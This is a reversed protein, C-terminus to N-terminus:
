AGNAALWREVARAEERELRRLLAGDPGILRAAQLDGAEEGKSIRAVKEINVYNKESVRLFSPAAPLAVGDAPVVAELRLRADRAAAGELRLISVDGPADFSLTEEDGSGGSTVALVLGLNVWDREGVRLFPSRLPRPPTVADAPAPAAEVEVVNRELGVVGDFTADSLDADALDAGTLRARSLNAGSLRAGAWTTSSLDAGSLNTRYMRVGDLTAGSLDAASLDADIASVNLLRAGSLVAGAARAGDLAVDSLNAGTLNARELNAESLRAGSLDCGSLDTGSLDAHELNMGALSAGRLSAGALRVGYVAAGAFTVGDLAVGALDTGELYAGDLAAGAMRAGTFRAGRLNANRLSAGTLDAREFSARSGNAASLDVGPLAADSLDADELTAHDLRAGTLDAGTFLARTGDASSLDAGRLDAGDLRTGSLRAYRLDAGAMRARSLTTGEFSASKLNALWLNGGSFDSGNLSAEELEQGSLDLAPEVRQALSERDVPEPPEIVVGDLRLRLVKQWLELDSGYVLRAGPIGDFAEDELQARTVLHISTDAGTADVVLLEDPSAAIVFLGKRAAAEDPVPGMTFWTERPESWSDGFDRLCVEFPGGEGAGAFSARSRALWEPCGAARPELERFFTANRFRRVFITAGDVVRWDLERARLWSLAVLADGQLSPTDSM